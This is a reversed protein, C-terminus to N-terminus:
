DNEMSIAKARPEEVCQDEFNQMIHKMIYHATIIESNIHNPNFLSMLLSNDIIPM